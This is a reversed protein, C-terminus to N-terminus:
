QTNRVPSIRLNNIEQETIRILKGLKKNKHRLQVIVPLTVVLGLLVGFCLSAFLLISVPFDRSGIIYNFEIAQNNKIFFVLGTILVIIFIIAYIVRTIFHSM